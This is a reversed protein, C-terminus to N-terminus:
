LRSRVARLGRYCRRLPTVRERLRWWGGAYIRALTEAHEAAQAQARGLDTRVGGLEGRLRDLEARQAAATQEAEDLREILDAEWSSRATVLADRLQPARAPDSIRELWQTNQRVREDWTQERGTARFHLVTPEPSRATRAGRAVIRQWLDWDAWRQRSVDWGGVARVIEVRVSVAAMPNSNTVEALRARGQPLSWDGAFWGLTDDPHVLAADSQVLDFCDRDWLLGIRELHGPLLLDDDALWLIVEGRALGLSRNRYEYAYGPGKPLDIAEVAPSGLARVAEATGDDCGDCLILVHEPPRTQALASRVALVATERRNHTPIAITFRTAVTAYVRM